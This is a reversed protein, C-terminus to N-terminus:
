PAVDESEERGCTPRLARASAPGNPRWGSPGVISTSVTSLNTDGFSDFSWCGLAGSFNTTALVHRLVAGRDGAREGAALIAAIVVKAADYGYIVYPAPEIHYRELYRTRFRVAPGTFAPPDWSESTALAGIALGGAQAIIDTNDRLASPGVFLADSGALRLDRLVFGAPGDAAFYVLEPHAAAVRAVVDTSRFTSPLTEFGVLDIGVRAAKERFAAAVGQSFSNEFALVYASRTGFSAAWAAGIAGQTDDTQIVRAYNRRCGSQDGFFTPRTLSPDTNTPSVMVLGGACLIPISVRAAGSNFPGIYAVVSADALAAQANATELSPQWAGAADGDDMAKYSIQTGAGAPVESLALQIANVIGETFLRSGGQMPLSSVIRVAIPPRTPASMGPTALSAAFVVSFMVAFVLSSRLRMHAVEEAAM